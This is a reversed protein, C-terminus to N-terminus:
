SIDAEGRDRTLADLWEDMSRALHKLDHETRYTHPAGNAIVLTKKGDPIVDFLIRVHKPPVSTDESGVYLFVPMTFQAADPLLDHKLREEMHSWPIRKIHKPNTVSPKELMGTEKWKAFDEPAFQEHAELSLEGSVVPAILACLAVTEPHKETYRAAAYGGMSHGTVGLPAVYWPQEQVFDAVDEFDECHLGLTAREFEGESEGFTNTADFTYTIFSHKLFADKMVQVHEQEKFGGYGHQVVVTGRPKQPVELTGVIRQSKRNKLEIRRIETQM